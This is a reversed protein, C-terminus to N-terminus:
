QKTYTNGHQVYLKNNLIVYKFKFYTSTNYQRLSYTTDTFTYSGAYRVTQQYDSDYNHLEYSQNEKFIIKEWSDTQYDIFKWSGVLHNEFEPETNCAVLMLLLLTLIISSLFTTKKM